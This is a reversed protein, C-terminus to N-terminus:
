VSPVVADIALVVADTAANPAHNKHGSVNKQVVANPARRTTTVPRMVDANEHSFLHTTLMLRTQQGTERKPLERYQMQHADSTDTASDTAADTAADTAYSISRQNKL